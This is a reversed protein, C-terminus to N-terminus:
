DIKYGFVKEFKSYDVKDSASWRNVPYKFDNRMEIPERNHEDIFRDEYSPYDRNTLIGCIGLIDIIIGVEDKNSKLIKQSIILDRLKGAKNHSDLKDVCKLMRNLIEKDNDTPTVKPLLLFQELDFLTYDLSTHGVGGWKYREFNFVNLGWKQDNETPATKWARWGCFYCHTQATPHSLPVFISINENLKHDPIAKAYYFSGLASRYELKRTSLSYLFANVVDDQNIKSLVQRLKNITEDHSTYDPYDFMFGQNKAIEFDENSITGDKWGNSSWYTKLLISLGKDM